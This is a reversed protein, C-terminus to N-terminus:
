DTELEVKNTAQLADRKKLKEAYFKSIVELTSESMTGTRLGHSITVRSIGRVPNKGTIPPGSELRKAKEIDKSFDVIKEIDGHEKLLKWERRKAPKVTMKNNAKYKEYMQKVFSLALIHVNNM